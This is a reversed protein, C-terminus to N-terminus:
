AWYKRLRQIWVLLALGGVIQVGTSTELGPKLEAVQRNTNEPAMARIPESSVMNTFTQMAPRVGADGLMDRATGSTTAEGSVAYNVAAGPSMPILGEQVSFASLTLTVFGSICFLSFRVLFVDQFIAWTGLSGSLVGEESMTNM